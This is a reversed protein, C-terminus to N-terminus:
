LYNKLIYKYENIFANRLFTEQKLNLMPHIMLNVSNSTVFNTNKLNQKGYAKKIIKWRDTISRPYTLHIKYNDYIRKILLNRLKKTWPKELIITYLYFNHNSYKKIKPTKLDKFKSFFKNRSIGIKYRKNHLMDFKTKIQSSGFIAQIKSIRYNLGWNNEGGYTTADRIKKVYKSSNTAIIGGEGLTTILKAGNFSFISFDGFSAIHKKKYKIGLARAGDYVVYIKHGYKNSYNRAIRQISDIECSHGTLYVPCIMRTKSTIKKKLDNVCINFTDPNIDCFKTTIKRKLLSMQWAKFNLAPAIVEHQKDIKLIDLLLDFALGNNCLSIANKVKFKKKFNNEFQNIEKPNPNFGQHWKNSSKLCKLVDNIEKQDFYSGLNPEAYWNLKSPYPKKIKVM